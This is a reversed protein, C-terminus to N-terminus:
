MTCITATKKIKGRKVTQSVTKTETNGGGRGGGGGGGGPSFNVFALRDMLATYSRSKGTYSVSIASQVDIDSYINCEVKPCVKVLTM